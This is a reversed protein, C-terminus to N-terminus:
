VRTTGFRSLRFPTIDFDTRGDLALDALIDGIASAFKFGHGSCPSAILVRAHEPHTDIIFDYDPTNTYLCVSSKIWAGNADPIFRKLVDRIDSIEVDSVTRRVVHATTIEGQHHWAIKVGGGLDPFGYAVREADCDLLFLPFRDPRLTDARGASASAPAFWHVANREVTLPLDFARAGRPTAAVASGDVLDRAWAGAAILLHGAHYEGAATRLEVGDATARWGIVPEEFALRAGRASALSLLTDVCREPDLVGARPDWVAVMEEPVRWAPFRRQVESASLQEHPVDHAIASACAGRVIESEPRGVSLGGCNLLLSAGSEAEIERWRAAARRVLPVYLPREFYAERIIRSEGHSSGFAHPPRFRDFGIVRGGRGAIAYAAASGMAGLGAIAVDWTNSSKSSLSSM